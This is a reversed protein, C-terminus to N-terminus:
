QEGMRYETENGVQKLLEIVDEDSTPLGLEKMTHIISNKIFNHNDEAAQTMQKRRRETADMFDEFDEKKASSKNLIIDDYWPFRASQVEICHPSADTRDFAYQILEEANEYQENVDLVFMSVKHLKAM